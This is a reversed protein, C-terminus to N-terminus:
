PAFSSRVARVFEVVARVFEVVTRVFETPAFSSEGARVFEARRSRVGSRRSRVRLPAFSSVGARVFGVVARVFQAMEWFSGM